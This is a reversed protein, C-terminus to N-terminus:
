DRRAVRGGILSDAPADEGDPSLALPEDGDPIAEDAPAAADAAPADEALAPLALTAVLAAALAFRANKFM